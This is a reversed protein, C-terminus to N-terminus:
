GNLTKTIQDDAAKTADDITKKGTGIDVLMQQLINAKEVSAWNPSNPTFWSNKAALATAENGKVKAADDLLNTANPLAGKAILGQMSQTSTFDKIWEASLDKYKSKGTVGVVSGGLFTPMGQGSTLGPLPVSAVKGKIPTDVMPSN